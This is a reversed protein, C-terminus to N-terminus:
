ELSTTNREVQGLSRPHENNVREIWKRVRRLCMSVRKGLHHFGAASHCLAPLNISTCNTDAVISIIGLWIATVSDSLLARTDDSPQADFVRDFRSHHHQLLLLRVHDIAGDVVVLGRHLLQRWLIHLEEETPRLKRWRLRRRRCATEQLIAPLHVFAHLIRQM